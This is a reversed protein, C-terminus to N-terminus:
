RTCCSCTWASGGCGQLIRRRRCAEEFSLQRRPRTRHDSSCGGRSGPGHWSSDRRRSWVYPLSSRLSPLFPSCVPLRHVLLSGIERWKSSPVMGASRRVASCLQRVGHSSRNEIWAVGHIGSSFSRLRLLILFPRSFFSASSSLLQASHRGIAGAPERSQRTREQQTDEDELM